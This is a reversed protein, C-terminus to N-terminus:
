RLGGLNSEPTMTWCRWLPRFEIPGGVRIQEREAIRRISGVFQELSIAPEVAEPSVALAAPRAHRGSAAIQRADPGYRAAVAGGSAVVPGGVRSTADKPRLGAGGGAEDVPGDDGSPTAAGRELGRRHRGVAETLQVAGMETGHEGFGTVAHGEQTVLVPKGAVVERRYAHAGLVPAYTWDTNRLFVVYRSGLAFRPVGSAEAWFGNPLPGGFVRLEVQAPVETGILSRVDRLRVHTRPGACDEFAHRVEFVEGEVVAATQGLLDRVTEFAGPAIRTAKPEPRVDETSVTRLVTGAPEPRACGAPLACLLASWLMVGRLAVPGQM